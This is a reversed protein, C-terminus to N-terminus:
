LARLGRRLSASAIFLALTRPTDRIATTPLTL